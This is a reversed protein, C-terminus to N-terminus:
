QVPKSVGSLRFFGIDQKDDGVVGAIAVQTGVATPNTAAHRRGTNILQRCFTNSKVRKIRLWAARRTPRGHLGPADGITAAHGGHGELALATAQGGGFPRQCRHQFGTAVVSIESAFPMQTFGVIGKGISLTIVHHLVDAQIM